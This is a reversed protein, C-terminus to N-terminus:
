AGHSRRCLHTARLPTRIRRSRRRTGRRGRKRTPHDLALQQAIMGGVSQGVVHAAPIDLATLLGASDNAMDALTYGGEPFKQSLGVDRNDFRLVHFGADALQRCLGARWGIM